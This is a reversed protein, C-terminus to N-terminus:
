ALEAELARAARDQGHAAFIGRAEAALARRQVPDATLRVQLARARARDLQQDAGARAIVRDLLATATDRDDTLLAARARLVPLRTDLGGFSFAYRRLTRIGRAITRELSRNPITRPATEAVEILVELALAGFEAWHYGVPLARGLRALVGSATRYAQATAGELLHALAEATQRELLTGGDAGDLPIERAAHVARSCAATDGRLFATQAEDLLSWCLNIASGTEAALARHHQWAAEAGTM